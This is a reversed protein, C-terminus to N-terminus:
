VGKSFDSAQEGVTWETQTACPVDSLNRCLASQPYMARSTTSVPCHSIAHPPFTTAALFADPIAVSQMPVSRVTTGLYLAHQATPRLHVASHFVIWPCLPQCTKPGPNIATSERGRRTPVVSELKIGHLSLTKVELRVHRNGWQRLGFTTRGLVDRRM